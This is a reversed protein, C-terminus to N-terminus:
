QDSTIVYNFSFFVFLFIFIAKPSNPPEHCYKEAKSRHKDTYKKMDEQVKGLAAKAEEEIKQMREVFKNAEEFRGKKRLEFGM